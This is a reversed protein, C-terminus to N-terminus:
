SSFFIALSSARIDSSRKGIDPRLRSASGLADASINPLNNM